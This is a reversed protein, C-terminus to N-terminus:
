CHDGKKTISFICPSSMLGYSFLFIAKMLLFLMYAPLWLFRTARSGGTDFFFSSISKLPM